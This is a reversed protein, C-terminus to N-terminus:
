MKPIRFGKKFFMRAPYEIFTIFVDITNVL